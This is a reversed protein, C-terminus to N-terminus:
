RADVGKEVVRRPLPLFMGPTDLCFTSYIQECYKRIVTQHLIYSRLVKGPLKESEMEYSKLHDM